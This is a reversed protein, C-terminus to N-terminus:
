VIKFFVLQQQYFIIPVKLAFLLFEIEEPMINNKNFLKQAAHFGLDSSCEEEDTYHRKSIGTKSEIKKLSWEPYLKWIMM